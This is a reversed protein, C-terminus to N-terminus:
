RILARGFVIEPADSDAPRVPVIASEQAFATLDDRRFGAIREPLSAFFRAARQAHRTVGIPQGQRVKVGAAALAILGQLLLADASDRPAARWLLEWAEHAEWYYGNNFLDLGHALLDEPAM